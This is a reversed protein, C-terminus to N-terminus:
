TLEGLVGRVGAERALYTVILTNLSVGERDAQAVLEKHLTRPMRVRVNGSDGSPRRGSPRKAPREPETPSVGYRAMVEELRRGREGSLRRARNRELLTQFEPSDAVAKREGEADSPVDIRTDDHLAVIHSGRKPKM